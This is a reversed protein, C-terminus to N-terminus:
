RRSAKSLVERRSAVCLKSGGYSYALMSLNVQQPPLKEIVLQACIEREYELWGLIYIVCGSILFKDSCVKIDNM